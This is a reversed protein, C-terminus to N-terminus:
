MYEGPPYAIGNRIYPDLVLEGGNADALVLAYIHYPKTPQNVYFFSITSPTVSVRKFQGGPDGDPHKKPRKFPSDSTLLRVFQLGLQTRLHLTVNVPGRVPALDILGTMHTYPGQFYADPDALAGTVIVDIDITAPQLLLEKPDITM